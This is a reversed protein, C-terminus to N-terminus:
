KSKEEIFITELSKDVQIKIDEANKPYYEKFPVRKYQLKETILMLPNDFIHQFEIRSEILSLNKESLGRKLMSNMSETPSTVNYGLCLSSNKCFMSIM